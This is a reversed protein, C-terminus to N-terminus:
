TFHCGTLKKCTILTAYKKAAGIFPPSTQRERADRRKDRAMPWRKAAAHAHRPSRRGFLRPAVHDHARMFSAQM